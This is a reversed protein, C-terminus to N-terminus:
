FSRILTNFEMATSINKCADGSINNRRDEEEEEEEEEEATQTKSPTTPPRKM